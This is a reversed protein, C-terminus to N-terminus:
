FTRDMARSGRLRGLRRFVRYIAGYGVSVPFRLDWITIDMLLGCCASELCCDAILTGHGEVGLKWVSPRTRGLSVREYIGERFSCGLHAIVLCLHTEPSRHCVM